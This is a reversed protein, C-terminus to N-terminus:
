LMLQSLFRILVRPFRFYVPNIHLVVNKKRENMEWDVLEFAENLSFVVM